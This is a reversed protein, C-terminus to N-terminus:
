QAKNSQMKKNLMVRKVSDLRTKLAEVYKKDVEERIFFGDFFNSPTNRGALKARRNINRGSRKNSLIKDLDTSNYNEFPFEKTAKEEVIARTEEPTVSQESVLKENKSLVEKEKLVVDTDSIKEKNGSTQLQIYSSM